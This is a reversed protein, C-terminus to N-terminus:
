GAVENEAVDETWGVIMKGSDGHSETEATELMTVKREEERSAQWTQVIVVRVVDRQVVNRRVGWVLGEILRVESEWRVLDYM